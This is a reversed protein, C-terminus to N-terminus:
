DSGRRRARRGAEAWALFEGQARSALASLSIWVISWAILAMLWLGLFAAVQEWPPGSWVSAEMRVSWHSAFWAATLPALAHAAGAALTFFRSACFLVPKAAGQAARGYSVAGGVLVAWPRSPKRAPDKPGRSAFDHRPFSSHNM